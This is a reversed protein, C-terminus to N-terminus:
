DWDGNDDDSGPNVAKRQDEAKKLFHENFWPPEPKKIEKKVPTIVKKAKGREKLKKELEKALKEGPTLERVPIKKDADHDIEVKKLGKGSLVGGYGDMIKAREIAAEPLGMKRMRVYKPDETGKLTRKEKLEHLFSKKKPSDEAVKRKRVPEDEEESTEYEVPNAFHRCIMVDHKKVKSKYKKLVNQVDKYEIPPMDDPKYRKKRKDKGKLFTKVTNEFVQTAIQKVDSCNYGKTKTVLAAFNDDSLKNKRKEFLHSFLHKRAEDNPLPIHCHGKNFRRLIAGDIDAPRNTAAIILVNANQEGSWETLFQNLVFDPEDGGGDRAGFIVECEDLFIISYTKRRSHKFLQKVFGESEGKWKSNIDAASVKYFTVDKFQNALAEAVMTKGCGPPGYLLFGDGATRDCLDPQFLRLEVASTLADCIDDLGKIDKFSVKSKKVISGKVKRLAKAVDEGGEEEEEGKWPKPAPKPRPKPRPKPKPKPSPTDSDDNSEEEEEEMPQDDYKGLLEALEDAPNEMKPVKYAFVFKHFPIHAGDAAGLKIRDIIAFTRRRLSLINNVYGIFADTIKKSQKGILDESIQSAQSGRFSGPALVILTANARILPGNPGKFREHTHVLISINDHRGATFLDALATTSKKFSTSVDDLVVLTNKEDGNENNKAAKKAIKDLESFRTKHFNKQYAGTRSLVDPFNEKKKGKSIKSFVHVDNTHFMQKSKQIDKLLSYSCYTKGKMTEGISIISFFRDTKFEGSVISLPDFISPDENTLFEILDDNKKRYPNKKYGSQCKQNSCRPKGNVYVDPDLIITRCEARQCRAFIRDRFQRTSHFYCITDIFNMGNVKHKLMWERVKLKFEKADQRVNEKAYDEIYTKHREFGNMNQWPSLKEDIDDTPKRPPLQPPPSKEDCDFDVNNNVMILQNKLKELEAVKEPQNKFKKKLLEVQKEVETMTSYRDGAKGRPLTKKKYGSLIDEKMSAIEPIDEVLLNMKKLAKECQNLNLLINNKTEKLLTEGDTGQQELFDKTKELFKIKQEYASFREAEHLQQQIQSFINFKDDDNIDKRNAIVKFHSKWEKGVDQEYRRNTKLDKWIDRWSEKDNQALSAM